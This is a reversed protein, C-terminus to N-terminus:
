PLSSRSARVRSVRVQSPERTSSWATFGSIDAFMVTTAVFLDAIPKTNLFNESDVGDSLFTKLRSKNGGEYLGNDRNGTSGSNGNAFLRARVNSPFISSVIAQSRVVERLIKEDACFLAAVNTLDSRNKPM